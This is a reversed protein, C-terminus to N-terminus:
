ASSIIEKTRKSVWNISSTGYQFTACYGRLWTLVTSKSVEQIIFFNEASLEILSGWTVKRCCRKLNERTNRQFWDVNLLLVRSIGSLISCTLSVNVSSWRYYHSEVSPLLTNLGKSHRLQGVWIAKRRFWRRKTHRKCNSNAGALNTPIEFLYILTFM